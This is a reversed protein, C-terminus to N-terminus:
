SGGNVQEVYAYGEAIEGAVHGEVACLGEWYINQTTARADLEADDVVATLKVDIEQGPLAIDWAVGYEIGTVPSVWTASTAIRFEDAALSYPPDRCPVVTGFAIPGDAGPFQYLMIDTGDYLRISFWNWALHPDNLDRGWQRDFWLQGSVDLTAGGVRLTGTADMRPRSYYFSRGSSGHPVYGDGGHLVAGRRDRLALSLGYDGDAFAAEVFDSGDEGQMHILPTNLNFGRGPTLAAGHPGVVVVQDYQFRGAQVDIVACHASWLEVPLGIPLPPVHFIVAEVGFQAGSDATLRGSYYWWEGGGFCHPAEDLPLRVRPDPTTLEYFPDPCSPCGGSLAALSAAVISWRGPSMRRM